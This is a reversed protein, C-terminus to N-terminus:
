LQIREKLNKTPFKNYRILAEDSLAGIIVKGYKHAAEIVNLHGDHIVDTCFVTYVTKM